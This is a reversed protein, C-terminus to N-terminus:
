DKPRPTRPSTRIHYLDHLRSHWPGKEHGSINSIVPSEDAIVLPDGKYHCAKKRGHNLKDFRRM